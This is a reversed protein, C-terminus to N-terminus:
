NFKISRYATDMSSCDSCLGVAVVSCDFVKFGGLDVSGLDIDPLQRADIDIVKECVLCSAHHHKSTDADFRAKAEPNSIKQALGLQVFTELVRYVTTRSVGTIRDQISAYIQDATPHDTRSSLNELIARRQVTLSLRNKRCREEMLKLKASVFENSGTPSQNNM